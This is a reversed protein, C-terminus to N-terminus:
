KIFKSECVLADGAVAVTAGAKMVIETARINIPLEDPKSDKNVVMIKGDDFFFKETYGGVIAHLEKETFQKKNAPLVAEQTGDARYIIPTTKM